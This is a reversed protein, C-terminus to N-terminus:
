KDVVGSGRGDMKTEREQITEDEVVGDRQRVVKEDGHVRTEAGEGVVNSCEEKPAREAVAGLERLGHLHASPEVVNVVHM